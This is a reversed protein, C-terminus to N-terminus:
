VQEHRLVPLGPMCEDSLFAIVLECVCTWAWSPMIELVKQGTSPSPIQRLHGNRVLGFDKIATTPVFCFM